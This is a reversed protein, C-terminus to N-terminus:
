LQAEADFPFRASSEAADTRTAVNDLAFHSEIERLRAIVAHRRIPDDVEAMVIEILKNLTARVTAPSNWLSSDESGELEREQRELWWVSTRWNKEDLAAARVNRMHDVEAKAEAHHAQQAFEANREIEAALQEISLGLFKCATARDCGLHLIACFQAKNFETLQAEM